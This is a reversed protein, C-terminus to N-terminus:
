RITSSFRESILWDQTLGLVTSNPIFRMLCTELAKLVTIVMIITGVVPQVWYMTSVFINKCRGSVNFGRPSM